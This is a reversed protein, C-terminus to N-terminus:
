LSSWKNMCQDSSMIPPFGSFVVDCMVLKSHLTVEPGDLWRWYNWGDMMMSM